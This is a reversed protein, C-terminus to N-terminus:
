KLIEELKSKDFKIPFIVIAYDDDKQVIPANYRGNSKWPELLTCDNTIQLYEDNIGILDCDSKFIRILGMKKRKGHPPNEILLNTKTCIKDTNLPEIAKKIDFGSKDIIKVTADYLEKRGYCDNKVDPLIGSLPRILSDYILDPVKIAVYGDTLYVSGTSRQFFINDQKELYKIFKSYQNKM